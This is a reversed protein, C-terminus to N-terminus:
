VGEPSGGVRARAVDGATEEDNLVSGGLALNLVVVGRPDPGVGGTGEDNLVLVGTALANLEVAQLPISTDPAAVFFSIVLNATSCVGTAAGLPIRTTARLALTAVSVAAAPQLGIATAARLALTATLLANAPGLPVQTPVKVALTASSQCAATQLPVQTPAKVAATASSTCTAAQLPITTPAKLALTASSQGGAYLPPAYSYRNLLAVDTATLGGEVIFHPGMKVDAWNFGATGTGLRMNGGTNWASANTQTSQLVGGVYLSVQDAAEDFVLVPFFWAGTLAPQANTWTTNTANNPNFVINRNNQFLSLNPSNAASTSWITDHTTSTDRYVWFGLSRTTGNVAPQYTASLWNGVGDYETCSAPLGAIPPVITTEGGVTLGGQATGNHAGISQDVAATVADQAWYLGGGAAAILAVAQQKFGYEGTGFILAPATIAATASSTCSAPQLPVATPATISATASSQGGAYLAPQYAYRNLLAGDTTTIAGEVVGVHGMKGDFPNASGSGSAALKFNGPTASYAGVQAQSSVLAGNVMLALTDGAEDFVWIWLGWVTNGPAWAGAWATSNTSNVFSTVGNTGSDLRMSPQGSAPDGAFIVDVTGSTDRYAWGFASRVTGNVFAAYLTTMVNTVGDFDTCSPAAGLIPPFTATHGGVTTGGAATANHAGISQDTGGTPSDLTWYAGGGAAKILALAKQQFGYDGTGYILAPATLAATASSQCSAPDLAITVPGETEVSLVQTTPPTPAYEAQWVPGVRDANRTLPTLVRM